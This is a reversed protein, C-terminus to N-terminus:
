TPFDTGYDSWFWDNFVSDLESKDFDQFSDPDDAGWVKKHRVFIDDSSGGWLLDQTGDDGGDLLDRGSGGFLWDRGSRGFLQDHGSGGYLLDDGPAM